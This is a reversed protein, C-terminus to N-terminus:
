MMTFAQLNLIQISLLQDVCYLAIPKLFAGNDPIEEMRVANPAVNRKFIISTDQAIAEFIREDGATPGGGSIDGLRVRFEYNTGYRLNM